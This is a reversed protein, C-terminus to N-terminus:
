PTLTTSADSSLRRCSVVFSRTNPNEALWPLLRRYNSLFLFVVDFICRVLWLLVAGGAITELRMLTNMYQCSLSPPFPPPVEVVRCNADVHRVKDYLWVNHLIIATGTLVLSSILVFLAIHGGFALYSLLRERTM